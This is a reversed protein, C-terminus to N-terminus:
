TSGTPRKRRSPWSQAVYVSAIVRIAFAAMDLSSSLDLARAWAGKLTGLKQRLPRLAYWGVSRIDSPIWTVPVGFICPSHPCFELVPIGDEDRWDFCHFGVFVAPDEKKLEFGVQAYPSTVREVSTTFDQMTRTVAVLYIDDMWRLAMRLGVGDMELPAIRKFELFDGM